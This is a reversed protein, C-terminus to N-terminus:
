YLDTREMRLNTRKYKQWLDVGEKKPNPRRYKECILEKRKLTQDDTSRLYWSRGDTSRVYWSRGETSRVYWKRRKQPKIAHQGKTGCTGGAVGQAPTYEALLAPFYVAVASIPRGANRQIWAGAAPGDHPSAGVQALIIGALKGKNPRSSGSWVSVICIGLSSPKHKKEM